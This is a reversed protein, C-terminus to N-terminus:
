AFMGTSAAMPVGAVLFGIVFAYVYDNRFLAIM